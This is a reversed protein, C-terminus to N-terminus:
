PFLKINEEKCLNTIEDIMNEKEFAFHIDADNCLMIGLGIKPCRIVFDSMGGWDILGEELGSRVTNELDVIELVRNIPDPLGALHRDLIFGYEINVTEVGHLSMFAILRRLIKWLQEESLIETCIEKIQPQGPYIKGM